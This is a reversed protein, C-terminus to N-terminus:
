MYRYVFLVWGFVYVLCILMLFVFYFGFICVFCIFCLFDFDLMVFDVFMCFFILLLSDFNCLFEGVLDVVLLIDEKVDVFNM